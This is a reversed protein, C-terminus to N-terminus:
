TKIWKGDTKKKRSIEKVRGVFKEYPTELDVASNGCDCFNMEHRLHSYSVVVDSCDECQWILRISGESKM